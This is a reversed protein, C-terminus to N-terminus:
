IKAYNLERKKKKMTISFDWLVMLACITWIMPESVCVGLYGLRPALFGVVFFKLGLEVTSALLPILKRGLGQLTSRLILLICLIYYFPLNIHLYRSATSLVEGVGTGTMLEVIQKVFLLVLLNATTCWIVGILATSKIGKVIRDWNGAGYNQSAFTSASLSLTGLPLMFIESLKRAATHATITYTGFGNVASQLAVTGVSVISLMMGMSIGTAFLDNIINGNAKFDEKSIKLMPCKLWIYAASLIVSILQAVVTAYAAGEVGMGFVKVFLVVLIMNIVTSIILFVLPMRSNGVARLIGAFMNYIMTVVLFQLIIRIYLVSNGMIDSPTHLLELLPRIGFGSAITLILATILTLVVTSAIAQKMTDEKKAGFYRAVVISFGSTMGSALSIVLGYIASTAGLAALAEDGLVHGVVVMDVVNYLQQFINGIFIPIAFQLIVSLPNGVTLDNNTKL